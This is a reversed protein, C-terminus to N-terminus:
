DQEGDGHYGNMRRNFRYIPDKAARDAEQNEFERDAEEEDEPSKNQKLSKALQFVTDLKGELQLDGLTIKLSEDDVRHEYVMPRGGEPRTIIATSFPSGALREDSFADQAMERILQAAQFMKFERYDENLIVADRKPIHFSLIRIFRLLQQFKPHAIVFNLIETDLIDELAELAKDSLEIRLGLDEHKPKMNESRGMLYDLSCGTKECLMDLFAIDPTRHGGEYYSITARAMGLAKAFEEQSIGIEERLARLRRSFTSTIDMSLCGREKIGADVNSVNIFGKTRLISM